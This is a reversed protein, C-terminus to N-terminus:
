RYSVAGAERLKPLSFAEEIQACLAESAEVLEAITRAESNLMGDNWLAKGISGLSTFFRANMFRETGASEGSKAVVVKELRWSATDASIRYEIEPKKRPKITVRIDVNSNSSEESM